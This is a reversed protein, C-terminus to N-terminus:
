QTMFSLSIMPYAPLRPTHGGGRSGAALPKLRVNLTEAAGETMLVAMTRESVIDGPQTQRAVPLADFGHRRPDLRAVHATPMLRHVVEDGVGGPVIPGDQADGPLGHQRGQLAVPRHGGPDDVIRPDRFFATVRDPHRALVTAHEAFLVVALHGHTD